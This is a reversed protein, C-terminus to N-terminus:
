PVGVGAAERSELHGALEAALLARGDRVIAIRARIEVLTLPVRPAPEQYGCRCALVERLGGSPDSALDSELPAGCRRCNASM